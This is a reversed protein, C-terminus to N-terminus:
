NKIISNKGFGNVLTRVGPLVNKKYKVKTLEKKKEIIFIIGKVDDHPVTTSSNQKM